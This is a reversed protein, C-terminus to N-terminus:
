FIVMHIRRGLHSLCELWETSTEKQAKEELDGCLGAWAKPVPSSCADGWSKCFSSPLPLITLTLAPRGPWAVAPAHARVCLTVSSSCPPPCPQLPRARLASLQVPRLLVLDDKLETPQCGARGAGPGGLSVLLPIFRLGEHGTRLCCRCLCSKFGSHM